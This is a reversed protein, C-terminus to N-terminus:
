NWGSGDVLSSLMLPLFKMNLDVASTVDDLGDGPRADTQAYVHLGDM